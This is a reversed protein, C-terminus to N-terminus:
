TEEMEEVVFRQFVAWEITLTKANMHKHVLERMRNITKARENRRIDTEGQRDGNWEDLRVGADALPCSGPDHAVWDFLATVAENRGENRAVRLAYEKDMRRPLKGCFPCPKLDDM